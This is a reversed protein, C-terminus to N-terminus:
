DVGVGADQFAMRDAEAADSGELVLYYLEPLELLASIGDLGTTDQLRVSQLARCAALPSIDEVQMGCLSFSSLQTLNSVGSIDRLGACKEVDLVTLGSAEWLGSWDDAEVETLSLIRLEPMRGAFSLDALKGGTLSLNYM